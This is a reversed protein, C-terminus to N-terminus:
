GSRVLSNISCKKLRRVTVAFVASLASGGLACTALSIVLPEITPLHHPVFSWARLTAIAWHSIAIGGLAGATALIFAGRFHRWLITKPAGGVAQRIGFERRRLAIERSTFAYIGSLFILVAMGAFVAACAVLLPRYGAAARVVTAFEAPPEFRAEPFLRQAVSAARELRVAASQPGALVVYVRATASRSAVPTLRFVHEYEVFIEPEASSFMSDHAVSAVVGAVTWLGGSAHVQSGVLVGDRNYKRWFAENVVATDTGAGTFCAGQLCRIGVVSFYERSVVRVKVMQYTRVDVEGVKNPFRVSTLQDQRSLPLVNTLAARAGAAAFADQLHRLRAGFVNLDSTAAEPANMRMFVIDSEAFGVNERLLRSLAATAWLTSVCLAFVLAVQVTTVLQDFRSVSRGRLHKGIRRTTAARLAILLGSFM